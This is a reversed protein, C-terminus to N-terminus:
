EEGYYYYYNSKEMKKNNLIGGLLKGKAAVLMDKAKAVKDIKTKGSKYVLISGQCINALIQADAVALLPPTDFLVLDFDKTALEVFDLMSESGLLEAPNPPIPGSPLVYLNDLKTKVMAETLNTQRTLVNTLGVLNQTNFTYYQTPKRMDADVLLVRKGQQAFVVALNSATTSKGEEPLASSVMITKFLQDVGSYQINTRITRYQESVPSKADIETILWRKQSHKHNKKFM